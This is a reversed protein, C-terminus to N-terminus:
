VTQKISGKSTTKGSIKSGGLYSLDFSESYKKGKPATMSCKVNISKYENPALSEITVTECKSSSPKIVLNIIENKAINTIGFSVSDFSVKLSSCELNKDFICYSGSMRRTDIIGTFSFFAFVVFILALIAFIGLVREFRYSEDIAM